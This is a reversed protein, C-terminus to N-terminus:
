ESVNFVECNQIFYSLIIKCAEYTVNEDGYNKKLNDSLMRVFNIYIDEKSLSNDLVEYYFKKMQLSIKKHFNVNEMSKNKFWNDIILYYTCVNDIINKKLVKKMENDKIKEDITKAVFNQKLTNNSSIKELEELIDYLSKVDFSDTILDINKKRLIKKKIDILEHYQEVTFDKDYLKHCDYCLSILNEEEDPNFKFLKEETELLEKQRKSPSHPYIHAIEMIYKINDNKSKKYIRKGCLPCKGDVENFLLGRTIPSISKRFNKDTKNLNSM